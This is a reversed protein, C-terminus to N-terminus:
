PNICPQCYQMNNFYKKLNNSKNSKNSKKNQNEIKKTDINKRNSCCNGM